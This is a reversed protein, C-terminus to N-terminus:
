IRRRAPEFGRSDPHGPRRCFINAVDLRTLLIPPLTCVDENANEMDPPLLLLRQHVNLPVKKSEEGLNNTTAIGDSIVKPHSTVSDLGSSFHRIPKILNSNTCVPLSALAGRLFYRVEM